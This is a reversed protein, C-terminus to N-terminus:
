RRSDRNGGLKKEGVARTKGIQLINRKSRLRERLHYTKRRLKKKKREKIGLRQAEGKKKCRVKGRKAIFSARSPIVKETITVGKKRGETAKKRKKMCSGTSRETDKGENKGQIERGWL